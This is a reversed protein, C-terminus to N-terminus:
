NKIILQIYGTRVTKSGRSIAQIVRNNYQEIFKCSTEDISEIIRILPQFASM